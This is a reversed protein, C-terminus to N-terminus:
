RESAGSIFSIPLVSRIAILLDLDLVSYIFSVTSFLNWFKFPYCDFLNNRAVLGSM